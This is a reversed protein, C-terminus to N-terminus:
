DSQAKKVTIGDSGWRRVIVDIQDIVPQPLYMQDGSVTTWDALPGIEIAAALAVEPDNYGSGVVNGSGKHVIMWSGRPHLGVWLGPVPTPAGQVPVLQRTWASRAYLTRDDSM